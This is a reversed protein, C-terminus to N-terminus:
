APPVVLEAFAIGLTEIQKLIFVNVDQQTQWVVQNDQSNIFYVIQVYIGQDQIQTIYLYHEDTTEQHEEIYIATVKIM